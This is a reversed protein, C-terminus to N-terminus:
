MLGAYMIVSQLSLARLHVCLVFRTVLNTGDLLPVLRVILLLEVRQLCFAMQMKANSAHERQTSGM